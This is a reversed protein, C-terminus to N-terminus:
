GIMAAGIPGSRVTRVQDRRHAVRATKADQLGLQARRRQETLDNAADALQGVPRETHIENELERLSVRGGILQSLTNVLRVFDAPQV